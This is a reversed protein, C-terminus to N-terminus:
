CSSFLLAFAIMSIIGSIVWNKLGEYTIFGAILLGIALIYRIVLWKESAGMADYEPGAFFDGLAAVVFLLGIVIYVIKM